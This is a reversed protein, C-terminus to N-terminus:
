EDESDSPPMKGANSEEEDSDDEDAYSIRQVFEKPWYGQKRWEKENRVVNIIEGDLKNERENMAGTDVLVFGGRKIWITSRFRAPLEVLLVKTDPLEIRYLNNGAAQQVRAVSQTSTLSPPPTMTEEATAQLNRRPKPM